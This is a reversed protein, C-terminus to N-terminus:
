LRGGLPGRSRAACVHAIESPFRESFCRSLIGSWLLSVTRSAPENWRSPLIPQQSTARALPM